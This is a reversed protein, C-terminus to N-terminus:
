TTVCATVVATFCATSPRACATRLLGSSSRLRASCSLGGERSSAVAEGDSPADGVDPGSTPGSARERHPTDPGSRRAPAAQAATRRRTPARRSATPGGGVGAGGGGGRGAGGGAGGG